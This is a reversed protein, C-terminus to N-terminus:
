RIHVDETLEGQSVIERRKNSGTSWVNLEIGVPNRCTISIM